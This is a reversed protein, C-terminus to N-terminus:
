LDRDAADPYVELFRTYETQYFKANRRLKKAEKDFDEGSMNKWKQAQERERRKDIKRREDELEKQKEEALLKFPRTRKRHDYYVKQVKGQSAGLIKGVEGFVAPKVSGQKMLEDVKREIEWGTQLLFKQADQRWNKPRSMGFAEELHRVHAHIYSIMAKDLEDFIRKASPSISQCVGVLCFVAYLLQGPYDHEKDYEKAHREIRREAVELDRLKERVTLALDVSFLDALKGTKEAPTETM